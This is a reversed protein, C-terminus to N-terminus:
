EQWTLFRSSVASPKTKLVAGRFQLYFLALAAAVDSEETRQIRFHREEQVACISM